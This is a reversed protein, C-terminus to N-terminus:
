TSSVFYMEMEGMNKVEVKGRATIELDNSLLDKTSQSVNVKGAVGKSEMRSAVNVTDGWVDYAFKSSGVVGAAVEGTHVGIRATFRPLKNKERVANWDDLANQIDIGLKVVQTASEKASLDYNGVCMYADGITKIKEVNWEKCLNDFMSFCENLSAILQQTDLQKSIKSFGIFDIFMVTVAEHLKPLVKGKEKLERAVDVPLINHLLEDSKKREEALDDNQKNLLTNLKRSRLFFFAVAGLGALFVFMLLTKQRGREKELAIIENKQTIAEESEAISLSDIMAKFKLSDLARNTMQIRLEKKAAALTMSNLREENIQITSSLQEKELETKTTGKLFSTYAGTPNIQDSLAYLQALVLPDSTHTNLLEIVQKLEETLGDLKDKDFVDSLKKISYIAADANSICCTVISRAYDIELFLAAQKGETRQLKRYASKWEKDAQAINKDQVLQIAHQYAAQGLVKQRSIKKDSNRANGALCFATLSM